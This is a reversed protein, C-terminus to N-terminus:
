PRNLRFWQRDTAVPVLASNGSGGAVPSWAGTTAETRQELVFGPASPWALRLRGSELTAAITPAEVATAPISYLGLNDLGFYWSDTGAHAFRFRM